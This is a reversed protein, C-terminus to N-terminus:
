PAWTGRSACLRSRPPARESRAPSASLPSMGPDGRYRQNRARRRRRGDVRPAGPKSHRNQSMKAVVEEIYVSVAAARKGQQSAAAVIERMQARMSETARAIQELSAAQETTAKAVTAVSTAAKTSTSAIASLTDTQEEVARAAQKAIRRVQNGAQVLAKM